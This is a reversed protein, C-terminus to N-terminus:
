EETNQNEPRNFFHRKFVNLRRVESVLMAMTYCVYKMNPEKKGDFYSEMLTQISNLDADSFEADPRKFKRKVPEM